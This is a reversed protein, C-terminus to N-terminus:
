ALHIVMLGANPRKVLLDIGSGKEHQDILKKFDKTSAVNQRNIEIILDGQRIGADQAKSDPAVGVVIVGATEEINFRRAMEPTM